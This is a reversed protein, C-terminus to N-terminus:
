LILFWTFTVAKIYNRVNKALLEAAPIEPIKLQMIQKKENSIYQLSWNYNTSKISPCKLGPYM